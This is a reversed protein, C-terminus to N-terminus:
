ATAAVPQRIPEPQVLTPDVKAAGVVGSQAVDAQLKVARCEALFDTFM